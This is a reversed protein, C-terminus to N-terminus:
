DPAFQNGFFRRFFPDNFLASIQRARVVRKTYINVVAPSASRVLPAFSLNIEGRSAPVRKADAALVGGASLLILM